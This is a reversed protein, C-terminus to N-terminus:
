ATAPPTQGREAVRGYCTHGTGPPHGRGGRPPRRGAADDADVNQHRAGALALEATPDLFAVRAVQVEVMTLPRGDTVAREVGAQHRRIPAEGTVSSTCPTANAPLGAVDDVVRQLRAPISEQPRDAEGVQHPASGQLIPGRSAVLDPRATTVQALLDLV